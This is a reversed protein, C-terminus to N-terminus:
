ERFSKGFFRLSWTGPEWLRRLAAAMILNASTRFILEETEIEVRLDKVPM